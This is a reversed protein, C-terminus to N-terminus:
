PIRSSVLAITVEKPSYNQHGHNFVLSRQRIHLARRRVMRWNQGNCCKLHLCHLPHSCHRSKLWLFFVPCLHNPPSGARFNNQMRARYLYKHWIRTNKSYKAVRFAIPWPHTLSIYTTCFPFSRGLALVLLFKLRFNRLNCTPSHPTPWFIQLLPSPVVYNHLLKKDRYPHCSSFSFVATLSRTSCTNCYGWFLVVSM